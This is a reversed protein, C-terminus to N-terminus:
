ALEQKAGFAVSERQAEVILRFALLHWPRAVLDSLADKEQERVIRTRGAVSRGVDFITDQLHRGVQALEAVM